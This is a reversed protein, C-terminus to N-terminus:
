GWSIYKASIETLPQTSGLAMIAAPLVMDIFNGIVNDPISGADKLNTACRRLWKAVLLTGRVSWTHVIIIM